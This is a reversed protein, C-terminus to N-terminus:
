DREEDEGSTQFSWLEGVEKNKTGVLLASGVTLPVLYLLAPQGKGSVFSAAFSILLGAGYAFLAPAFYGGGGGGGGGGESGKSARGEFRLLLGILLGPILVDGLGLLSFDFSSSEAVAAVATDRPFLFKTPTSLVPSMAVDAM